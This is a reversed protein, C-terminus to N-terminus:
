KAWNEPFKYGKFRENAYKKFEKSNLVDTLDKALPSTANKETVVVWNIYLNSKEQFLASRLSIGADTAYNGNIIVYDVDQAARPTQAAEIPTIKLKKPNKVIDKVGVLLPNADKAVEIWGLESLLTLARSLNTADNPLAISSGEKLAELTKLKGAYLGLPATPVQALTKLKLGKEKAFHDLYPKHQFINADIRGEALAINPIIYDTFEIVRVEYGKKQLEPKLGIKALEAFDGITTGITIIKKTSEAQAMLSVTLALTILLSHALIKKM